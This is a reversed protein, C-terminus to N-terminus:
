LRQKKGNTNWKPKQPLDIIEITEFHYWAFADEMKTEMETWNIRCIDNFMKWVRVTDIDSNTYLNTLMEYTIERRLSDSIPTIIGYNNERSTTVRPDSSRSVTLGNIANHVITHISLECQETNLQKASDM